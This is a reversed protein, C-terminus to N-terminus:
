HKIFSTLMKKVNSIFFDDKEILLCIIYIVGGIFILLCTNLISSSLNNRILCLSIFMVLGAGWYKISVRGIMKWSLENRVMILQIIAIVTEALVSAIAAGISSLCPILAINLFFNTFAGVVVTKTFINQRKTPILYQMGTVNNIGISLILFALISLLPIVKEFGDGYFWGVFNPAIAILGLCFPIGLMWVFRYSRYMYSQILSIEKKEFLYGIRPIMVTGLATVVMLVMRSIKLAQEYYGNEYTNHTIVGIMTKDLVTYISIAITPIFLTIVTKINAFPHINELKPKDVYKKIGIWLSVNGFFVALTAGLVYVYLDEKSKVFLFIFCISVIKVCFNRTAILQFEEMGQYLWTIDFVISIINLWLIYYITKDDQLHIFVIYVMSSILTTILRLSFTNWFFYTRKERNDQFYAVERQGYTATGLAAFIVFYHVISEAYSYAGIGDANLIRSVYPATILPTIIVFIQYALNFFYNRKISKKKTM